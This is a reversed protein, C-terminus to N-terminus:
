WKLPNWCNVLNKLSALLKVDRIICKKYDEYDLVFGTYNQWWQCIEYYKQEQDKGVFANVGDTNAYFVHIGAQELKEILMLLFLQNNLTVEYMAKLDYLWHHENGM